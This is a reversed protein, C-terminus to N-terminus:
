APCTRTSFHLRASGSKGEGSRKPMLISCQISTKSNLDRSWGRSRTSGPGARADPRRAFAFTDTPRFRGRETEWRFITIQVAAPEMNVFNLSSPRGGRTRTSLTGATSVVVKGDLSDAGEQHDHGCLILDAGTTLLLAQAQRWRALGMRRSIAGRLVNHHMALVRASTGPAAAFVRAVRRVEAAPLHGKVAMDNLNWTMSGFAVGHSTLASAVVAGPVELTPTLENGFYRRYKRYGVERGLIGFPSKWWEVDHNGPIVLAPAAKRMTQTFALARQLEGHRARQTLDGTMVVASPRLEPILAELAEIQDLQADRGFHLDSIHVLTTVPM